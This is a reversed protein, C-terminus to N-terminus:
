QDVRPRTYPDASWQQEGFAPPCTSTPMRPSFSPLHPPYSSHASWTDYTRSSMDASVPPELEKDLPIGLVPQPPVSLPISRSLPTILFPNNEKDTSTSAVPPQQFGHGATHTNIRKGNSLLKKQDRLDKTRQIAAKVKAKEAALETEIAAVAARKQHDQDVRKARYSSRRGNSSYRHTLTNRKNKLISNEQTRLIDALILRDYQEASRL